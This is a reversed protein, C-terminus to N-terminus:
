RPPLVAGPRVMVMDSEVLRLTQGHRSVPYIGSVAFGAGEYAALQEPFRPMGEYLPVWSVESQLGVVDDIRSGAGRFTELDFGQTDMKLYVRPEDIGATVEDFLADLRRVQITEPRSDRLGDSWDKGFESAPLLSSITGAVFNIEATGDESGLACPRVLWDPDEAATKELEAVYRALPEFSVIRGRYGSERLKTGYQGINAGVDLVCNIALRDLVYPIYEDCLYRGLQNQVRGMSRQASRPHTVLHTRADKPGFPLVTRRRRPRELLWSGPELRTVELRPSGSRRLVFADDNIRTTELGLRPLLRLARRTLPRM